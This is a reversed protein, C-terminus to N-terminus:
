RRGLPTAKSRAAERAVSEAAARQELREVRLTLSDIQRGERSSPADGCAALGLLLALALLRRSSLRTLREM